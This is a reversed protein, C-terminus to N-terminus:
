ELQRRFRWVGLSFLLAGLLAMALISDWLIGLGAGRLLIGFAVDIFHRLPSLAFLYRLWQPMAEPPTWTGSLMIIPTVLLMTLMLVQAQNRAFTAAVLGLGATTFVYLATLGFFLIASGRVPITFQPQMVGYLSVASGALVVLSMALVKPLLIQAPSLPSVLLQEVTGREKERVMAAGPLLVSVVTIWTLLQSIANFWADNFDPNYWVRYRDEIRPM